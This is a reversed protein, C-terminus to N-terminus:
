RRLVRGRARFHYFQLVTEGGENLRMLMTFKVLVCQKHIEESAPAAVRTVM